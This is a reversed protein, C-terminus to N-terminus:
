IHILSLVFGAHALGLTGGGQLVLNCIRYGGEQGTTCELVTAAFSYKKDNPLNQSKARLWFYQDVGELKNHDWPADNQIGFKEEIAELKQRISPDDLLDMKEKSDQDFLQNPM